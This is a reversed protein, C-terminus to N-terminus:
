WSLTLQVARSSRDALPEWRPTGARSSAARVEICALPVARAGGDADTVRLSGDRELRQVTGLQWRARDVRHFRVQEGARLGIAELASGEAASTV